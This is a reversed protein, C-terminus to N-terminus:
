GNVGVWHSDRFGWAALHMACVACGCNAPHLKDNGAFRAHVCYASLIVNPNKAGSSVGNGAYVYIESMKITEVGQTYLRSFPVALCRSSAIERTGFIM